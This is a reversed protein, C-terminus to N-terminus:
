PNFRYEDLYARRANISSKCWNESLPVDANMQVHIWSIKMWVVALANEPSMAKANQIFHDAMFTWSGNPRLLLPRTAPIISYSCAQKWIRLFCRTASPLSNNIPYFSRGPKGDIVANIANKLYTSWSADMKWPCLYFFLSDRALEIAKLGAVEGQSLTHPMISSFLEAKCRNQGKGTCPASRIM